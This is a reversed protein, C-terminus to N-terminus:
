DVIKLESQSWWNSSTSCLKATIGNMGSCDNKSQSLKVDVVNYFRQRSLRNARNWNAETLPLGRSMYRNEVYNGNVDVAVMKYWDSRVGIVYVNGIKVPTVNRTRRGVNDIFTGSVPTGAVRVDRM